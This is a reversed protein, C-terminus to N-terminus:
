PFSTQIDLLCLITCSLKKLPFAYPTAQLISGQSQCSVMTSNACSNSIRPNFDQRHSLRCSLPCLPSFKKRLTQKQKVNAWKMTHHNCTIHLWFLLFFIYIPHLSDPNLYHKIDICRSHAQPRAKGKLRKVTSAGQTRRWLLHESEM